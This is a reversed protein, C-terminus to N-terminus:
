ATEEASLVAVVAVRGCSGRAMINTLPPRRM